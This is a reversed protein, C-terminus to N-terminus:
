FRLMDDVAPLKRFLDPRYAKSRVSQAILGHDAPECTFRIKAAHRGDRSPFLLYAFSPADKRFRGGEGV